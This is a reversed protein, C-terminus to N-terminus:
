NQIPSPDSFLDRGMQSSGLGTPWLFPDFIQFPRNESGGGVYSWGSKEKQKRKCIFILFVLFFLFHLYAFIFSHTQFCYRKFHPLDLAAEFVNRYRQRECKSLYFGFNLATLMRFICPSFDLKDNRKFPREYSM